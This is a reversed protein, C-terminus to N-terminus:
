RCARAHTRAPRGGSRATRCGRQQQEHARPHLADDDHTPARLRLVVFLSCGAAVCVNLILCLVVCCLAGRGNRWVTHVYQSLPRQMFPSVHPKRCWNSEARMGTHRCSSFCPIQRSGSQGNLCVSSSIRTRARARRTPSAWRTPNHMNPPCLAQQSGSSVGRRVRARRASRVCPVQPCACMRDCARWMRDCARWMRDCARWTRDCARWRRHFARWMRDCARWVRSM